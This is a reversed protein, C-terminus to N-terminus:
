SPCLINKLSGPNGELTEKEFMYKSQPQIWISPCYSAMLLCCLKYNCTLAFNVWIEQFSLNTPTLRLQGKFVGCKVLWVLCLRSKPQKTLHISRPILSLFLLTQAKMFGLGVMSRIFNIVYRWWPSTGDQPRSGRLCAEAQIPEHYLTRLSKSVRRSM